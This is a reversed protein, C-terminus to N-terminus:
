KEPRFKFGQVQVIQSELAAGGAGLNDRIQMVYKHSKDGDLFIPGGGKAFTHRVAGMDASGAPLDTIFMDIGALLNWHGIKKIPNPSLNVLTGSGDEVTCLIGNTLAASAGYLASSFKDNVGVEIYINQRMLVYVEGPPPQIYYGGVADIMESDGDAQGNLTLLREIRNTPDSVIRSRESDWINKLYQETSLLQTM